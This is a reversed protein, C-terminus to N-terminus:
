HTQHHRRALTSLSSKRHFSLLKPVKQTLKFFRLRSLLGSEKATAKRPHFDSLVKPDALCVEFLLNGEKAAFEVAVM